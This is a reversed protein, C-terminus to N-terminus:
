GDAGGSFFYYIVYLWGLLGCFLAIIFDDNRKMALCFAIINGLGITITPVDSKVAVDEILGFM